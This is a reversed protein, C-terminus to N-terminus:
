VSDKERVVVSPVSYFITFELEAPSLFPNPRDERLMEVEFQDQQTNFLEILNGVCVGCGNDATSLIDAIMKAENLTM